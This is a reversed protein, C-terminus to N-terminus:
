CFRLSKLLKCTKGAVTRPPYTPRTTQKHQPLCKKEFVQKNINRGKKKEKERCLFTCSLIVEYEDLWVWLRNRLQISPWPLLRPSFRRIIPSFSHEWTFHHPPPSKIAVLQTFCLIGFFFVQGSEVIISNFVSSLPSNQTGYWYKYFFAFLFLFAHVKKRRRIQAVTAARAPSPHTYILHGSVNNHRRREDREDKQIKSGGFDIKIV